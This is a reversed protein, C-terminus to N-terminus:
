VTPTEDGFDFDGFATWTGDGALYKAQDGSNPAPVLGAEGAAASTAGAFDSFATWTGDGALYKAEDGASPAPVMGMSGAAASTAGSFETFATWTGDGALYKAADSSAASPVLGADSGSFVDITAWSGDVKLYRNGTDATTPAPVLGSNNGLFIDIADWTGDGKLYKGEDGSHPAPVLGAEGDASASAGTYNTFATWSGDGALYYDEQGSNPIPVLGMSGAAASTAGVFAATVSAPKHLVNDWEVAGAMGAAFETYADRWDATGLKTVDTVFYMKNTDIVHVVDGLQVDDETLDQRASKGATTEDTEVPVVRELAVDPLLDPSIKHGASNAGGWLRAVDLSGTLTDLDHNHSTDSKGDLQSQIDDTVDNLYGLQTTSINSAVIKGSGNSVVVYDEELNDDVITSAAGTVTAQKGNLQTQINDSVGDLYDLEDVTISSEAIKGASDSVVVLGGTLDTDVITSAAGTVTAQKDDLQTQINASVGDLYNLEDTTIESVDIKGASNSVVVSNSTLDDAVITTAAGTITDQKAANILAAAQKLAAIDVGLSEGSPDVNALAEAATESTDPTFTVELGSIDSPDIAYPLQYYPTTGDGVKIRSLGTGVGDDPYELFIEGANLIIKGQDSTSSNMITKSGRRPQLSNYKSIAM